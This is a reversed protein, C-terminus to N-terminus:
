DKTGNQANTDVELLTEGNYAFTTYASMAIRFKAAEEKNAFAFTSESTRYNTKSIGLAKLTEKTETPLTKAIKWNTEIHIIWLFKSVLDKQYLQDLLGSFNGQPHLKNLKTKRREREIITSIDTISSPTEMVFSQIECDKYVKAIYSADMQALHGGLANASIWMKGKKSFQPHTGGNSYLGTVRNKIMHVQPM